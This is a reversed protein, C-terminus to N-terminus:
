SRYSDGMTPPTNHASISSFSTRDNHAQVRRAQEIQLGDANETARNGRRLLTFALLVGVSGLVGFLVLVSGM